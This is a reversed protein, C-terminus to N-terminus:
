QAAEVDAMIVEGIREAIKIFPAVIEDSVPKGHRTVDVRYDYQEDGEPTHVTVTYKRIAM